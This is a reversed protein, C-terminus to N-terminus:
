MASFPAARLPGHEDCLSIVRLAMVICSSVFKMLMGTRM